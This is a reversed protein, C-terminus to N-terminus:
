GLLAALEAAAKTAGLRRYLGLARERADRAGAADGQAELAAGLDREIDALATASGEHRALEAAQALLRLAAPLDGQVRAVAAQLRWVDPLEARFRVRDYVEAARALEAAALAADALLLHLEARGMLALAVLSEDKAQTALRVAQDAAELATRYRQRDRWCIGINHYTEAIGRAFGAQQYAALALQYDALAAESDGRLNAIIGLNNLCRAQMAHDQVARAVDLAAAFHQEAEAVAGQRLAIAGQYNRARLEAQREGRQRAVVLALAAWRDAEAHAGLRGHAEAALLAFRTRGELTGAPLRHLRELVEQHRGQEALADLERLLASEDALSTVV